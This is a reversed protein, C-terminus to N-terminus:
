HTGSEKLEAWTSIRKGSPNVAYVFGPRVWDAEAADKRWLMISESTIDILYVWKEQPTDIGIQGISLMLQSGDPAWVLRLLHWDSEFALVKIGPLIFKRRESTNLKMLFIGFETERLLPERKKKASFLLSNGDLSWVPSWWYELGEAILQTPLGGDARIRMLGVDDNAEPDVYILNQSDPSWAPRFIARGDLRDVKSRFIPTENLNHPDILYLGWSGEDGSGFALWRGNPSWAPAGDFKRRHHTIQKLNKGHKEMTYVRPTGERNSLFAIENGDPSWHPAVNIGPEFTLRQSDQGDADMVFISSEKESLWRDFAIHKGDPSWSASEEKELSQTLDIMNAGDADMVYIDNPKFNRDFPSSFWRDAFLIKRGDPRWALPIRSKTGGSTLATVSEEALNMSYIQHPNPPPSKTLIVGIYAIQSRSPSWAPMIAWEEASQDPQVNVINKGDRDTIFLGHEFLQWFIINQSDPSWCPHSIFTPPEPQIIHRIDRTKMDIVCLNTKDGRPTGTMMIFLLKQGDPAWDLDRYKTDWEDDDTLKELRRTAIHLKFINSPAGPPRSVFVIETGDPSISPWSAFMNRTLQIPRGNLGEVLFVEPTFNRKSIFVIKDELGRAQVSSLILLTLLLAIRYTFQSYNLALRM